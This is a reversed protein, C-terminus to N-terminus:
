EPDSSESGDVLGLSTAVQVILAVEPRDAYVVAVASVLVGLAAVVAAVRSRYRVPLAALFAAVPKRHKSM